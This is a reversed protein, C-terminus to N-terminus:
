TVTPVVYNLNFLDALENLNSWDGVTDDANAYVVGAQERLWRMTQKNLTPVLIENYATQLLTEVFDYTISTTNINVKGVLEPVGGSYMPQGNDDLVPNGAADKVPNGRLLNDIVVQLMDDVTPLTSPIEEVDPYAMGYILEKLMRAIDISDLDIFAGIIGNGILGFNISGDIFKAILGSNDALFKLLAKLMDLDSTNGGTGRQKVAKQNSDYLAAVSLDGADGLLDLLTGHSNILDYISSFALNVSRLDLSGLISLDVTMDEKALMKDVEDLLMSAYQETTLVPLDAGDYQTLGDDKYKQYASAMTSMMSFIMVFALLVSLLRKAKKM